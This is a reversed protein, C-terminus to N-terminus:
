LMYTLKGTCMVLLPALSELKIERYILECSDRNFWDFLLKEAQSERSVIENNWGHPPCSKVHWACSNNCLMKIWSSLTKLWATAKIIRLWYIPYNFPLVLNCCCMWESFLKWIECLIDNCCQTMWLAHMYLNNNKFISIFRVTLLLRCCADGFASIM